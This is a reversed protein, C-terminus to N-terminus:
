TKEFPKQSACENPKTRIRQQDASTAFSSPKGRIIIKYQM